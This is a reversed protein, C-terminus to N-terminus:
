RSEQISDIMEFIHRGITNPNNSRATVLLERLARDTERQLSSGERGSPVSNKDKPSAGGGSGVLQIECKSKDIWQVAWGWDASPVTLRSCRYSKSGNVEREEWVKLTKDISTTALFRGCPSFCV